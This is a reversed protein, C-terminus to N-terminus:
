DRGGSAERDQALVAPSSALEEATLQRVRDGDARGLWHGDPNWLHNMTRRTLAPNGGSRLLWHDGAVWAQRPPNGNVRGVCAWVRLSVSFYNLQVRAAVWLGLSLHRSALLSGTTDLFEFSRLHKDQLADRM